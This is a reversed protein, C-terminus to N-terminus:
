PAIRMRNTNTRGVPKAPSSRRSAALSRRHVGGVIRYTERKFEEDRIGLEVFNRRLGFRFSGDNVQAILAARNAQALPALAGTTAFAANNPPQRLSGFAM